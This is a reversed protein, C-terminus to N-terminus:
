TSNEIVLFPHIKPCFLLCGLGGVTVNRVMMKTVTPLRLTM